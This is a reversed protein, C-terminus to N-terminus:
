IVVSLSRPRSGGGPRRGSGPRPVRGPRCPGIARKESVKAQRGSGVSVPGNRRPRITSALGISRRFRHETRCTPVTAGWVFDPVAVVFRGDKDREIEAPYIYTDPMDETSRPRIGLEAELFDNRDIGLNAFMKGLMAKGVEKKWVKVVTRRDGACLTGHKEAGTGTSCLQTCKPVCM